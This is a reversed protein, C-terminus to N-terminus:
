QNDLGGRGKVLLPKWYKAETFETTVSIKHVRDNLYLTKGNNVSVVPYNVESLRPMTVVNSEALIKFRQMGEFDARAKQLDADFIEYAQEAGKAWGERLKEKWLSREQPNRPFLASHPKAPLDINRILVSRWTPVTLVLKAPRDLTYSVEITRTETDSISQQIQETKRLSPLLVKGNIMYRSYNFVNFLSLSNSEALEVIDQYTHYLGEQLGWSYASQAIVDLRINNDAEESSHHTNDVSDLLENLRSDGKNNAASVAVSSFAFIIALIFKIKM